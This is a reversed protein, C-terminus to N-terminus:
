FHSHVPMAIVVSWVVLPHPWKLNINKRDYRHLPIFLDVVYRLCNLYTSTDRRGGGGSEVDM